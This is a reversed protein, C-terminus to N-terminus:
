GGPLFLDDIDQAFQLKALITAGSSPCTMNNFNFTGERFSVYGRLIPRGLFFVNMKWGDM